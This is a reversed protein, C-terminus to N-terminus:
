KKTGRRQFYSLRTSMLEMRGAQTWMIRSPDPAPKMVICPRGLLAEEDILTIAAAIAAVVAPLQEQSSDVAPFAVSKAIAM